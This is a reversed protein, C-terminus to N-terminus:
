EAPAGPAVTLCKFAGQLAYLEAKFHLSSMKEQKEREEVEKIGRELGGWSNTESTVVTLTVNCSQRKMMKVM